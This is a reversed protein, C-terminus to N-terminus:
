KLKFFSALTYGFLFIIIYWKNTDINFIGISLNILIHVIPVIININFKKRNFLQQSVFISFISIFLRDAVILDIFFSVIAFFNIKTKSQLNKTRFQETLFKLYIGYAFYRILQHTALLCIFAILICIYVETNNQSMKRRNM